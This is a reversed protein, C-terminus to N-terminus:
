EDWLHQNTPQVVAAFDAQLIEKPPEPLYSMPITGLFRFEGLCRFAEHVTRNAVFYLYYGSFHKRLQELLRPAKDDVRWVRMHVLRVQPKPADPFNAFEEQFREFERKGEAAISQFRHWFALQKSQHFEEPTFAYVYGKESEM